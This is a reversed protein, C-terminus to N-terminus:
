ESVNADMYVSESEPENEIKLFRTNIFSTGGRISSEMLHVMNIDELLELRCGTMKLMSDFAFSPLSVYHSPDLHSFKHMDARFQQFVEALLITDLKCYLKTYDLLNQCEFFNWIEKALQHEESSINKEKLSSYFKKRSPIKTTKSM